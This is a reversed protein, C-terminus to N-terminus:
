VFMGAVMVGFGGFFLFMWLWFLFDWFKAGVVADILFLLTGLILVVYTGGVATLVMALGLTFLDIM